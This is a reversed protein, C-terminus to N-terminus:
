HVWADVGATADALATVDAQILADIDARTLDLGANLWATVTGLPDVAFEIRLQEDAILRGILVDVIRQSM